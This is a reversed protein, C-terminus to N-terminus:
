TGIYTRVRLRILAFTGKYAIYSFVKKQDIRKQDFIKKRIMMQCNSLFINTNVCVYVYLCLCMSVCVDTIRHRKNM